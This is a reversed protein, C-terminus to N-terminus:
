LEEKLIKLSFAHTRREYSDISLKIVKNIYFWRLDYSISGLLKKLIYYDCIFKDHEKDKPLKDGEDLEYLPYEYALFEPYFDFKM